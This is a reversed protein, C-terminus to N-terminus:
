PPAFFPRLSSFWFQVDPNPGSLDATQSFLQNRRAVSVPIQCISPVATAAPASAAASRDAPTETRLRNAGRRRSSEHWGPEKVYGGFAFASLSFGGESGGDNFSCRAPFSRRVPALFRFHPPSSASVREPRAREGPM